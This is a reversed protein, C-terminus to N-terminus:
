TIDFVSSERRSSPAGSRDVSGCVKAGAVPGGFLSPLVWAAAERRERPAVWSSARSPPQQFAGAAQASEASLLLGVLALVNATM